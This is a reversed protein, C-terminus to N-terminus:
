EKPFPNTIGGLAYGVIAGLLTGTGEGSLVGELGLIAIIPGLTMVAILQIMRVGIGWPREEFSGDAHNHIKTRLWLRLVIMLIAGGFGLLGLLADIWLHTPV